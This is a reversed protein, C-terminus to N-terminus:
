SRIVMASMGGWVVDLLIFAHPQRVAVDNKQRSIFRYPKTYVSLDQLALRPNELVFNRALQGCSGRRGVATGGDAHWVCCM